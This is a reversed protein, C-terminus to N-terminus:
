NEQVQTDNNLFLIYKGKAYKAANNCNLLFRVNKETTILRVNKAVKEIDKTCDTSCDNAILIEYKVDGSNLMISKLCNYTYEFQNYVPIIISVLPQKWETFVLNDFQEITLVKERDETGITNRALQGNIQLNTAPNLNNQEIELANHYWEFVGKM